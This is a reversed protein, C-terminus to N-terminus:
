FTKRSNLHQSVETEFNELAVLERQPLKVLFSLSTENLSALLSPFLFYVRSILFMCVFMVSFSYALKIKLLFYEDVNKISITPKSISFYNGFWWIKNVLRWWEKEHVNDMGSHVIRITLSYHLYIEVKMINLMVNCNAWWHLYEYRNYLLKIQIVKVITRFFLLVSTVVTERPIKRSDHSHCLKLTNSLLTSLSMTEIITASM